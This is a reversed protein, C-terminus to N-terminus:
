ELKDKWELQQKKPKHKLPKEKKGRYKVFWEAYFTCKRFDMTQADDSLLYRPFGETENMQRGEPTQCYDITEQRQRYYEPCDIWVSEFPKTEGKAKQKDIERCAKAFEGNIETPRPCKGQQLTRGKLIDSGEIWLPCVKPVIAEERKIKM